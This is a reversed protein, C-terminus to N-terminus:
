SLSKEQQDYLKVYSNSFRIGFYGNANAAPVFEGKSFLRGLGEENKASIGGGFFPFFNEKASAVKVPNNMNNITFSFDTKALDIAVNTGKFLFTGKGEASQTLWQAFSVTCAFGSLIILIVKKM